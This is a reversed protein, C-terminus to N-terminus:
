WKLQYNVSTHRGLSVYVARENPLPISIGAGRPRASELQRLDTKANRLSIASLGVGVLGIGGALLAQHDSRVGVFQPCAKDATMCSSSQWFYLPIALGALVGSALMWRRAAQARAEAASNRAQWETTATTSPDTLQGVMSLRSPDGASGQVTQAATTSPLSVAVTLVAAILRVRM